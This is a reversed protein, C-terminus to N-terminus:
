PLNPWAPIPSPNDSTTNLYVRQGTPGLLQASGGIDVTTTQMISYVRASAGAFAM